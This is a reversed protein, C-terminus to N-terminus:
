LQSAITRMVSAMRSGFLPEWKTKLTEEFNRAKIGPHRVHSAIVMPGSKGGPLADLKGTATKPTFDGPYAIRKANVPYIPYWNASAAHSGQAGTGRSVWAYIQNDTFVQFTIAQPTESVKVQFTVKTAWTSTTRRFDAAVGDAVDKAGQILFSTFNARNRKKPLIPTFM